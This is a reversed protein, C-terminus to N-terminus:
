PAIRVASSTGPLEVQFAGNKDYIKTSNVGRYSNGDRAVEDTENETFYGNYAGDKFLWGMHHRFVHTQDVTKWSGMCINGGLVPQNIMEWETGDSHWQMFADAFPAGATTYKVHWQGVISEAPTGRSNSTSPPSLSLGLPVAQEVLSREVVSQEGAASPDTCGAHASLGVLTLSAAFATGAFISKM